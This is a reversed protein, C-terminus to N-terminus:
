TFGIPDAGGRRRVVFAAASKAGAQDGSPADIAKRRRVDESM